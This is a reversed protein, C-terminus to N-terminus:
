GPFCGGAPPLGPRPLLDLLDQAMVLSVKIGYDREFRRVVKTPSTPRNDMRSLFGTLDEIVAWPYILWRWKIIRRAAFDPQLHSVTKHHLVATRNERPNHMALHKSALALTEGTDNVDDVILVKMGAIAVKLPYRISAWRRRQAGMTYHEIKITTLQSIQLYDAVLRAPVYGGRGIAVILDPHYRSALIKFALERALHQVACWTLLECCFSPPSVM